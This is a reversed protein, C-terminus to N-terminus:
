NLKEILALRVSNTLLSFRPDISVVQATWVGYFERGTITLTDLDVEGPTIEVKVVDYIRKFYWEQGNLELDIFKPITSFKDLENGARELALTSTQLLTEIKLTPKQRETAVVSEVESDDIEIRYNGSEYNKKYDVSVIAAILDSDTQVTIDNQNNYNEKTIVSSVGRARDDIRITRRGDANIEYRFRINAGEQVLRIAEFLKIEQDFMVGIESLSLEEAEWETINYNSDTYEINLAKQNLYKIVDSGYTIPEGTASEVRCNFVKGTPLGDKRCDAYSVVFEGTSLNETITDVDIWVDGSFIQVQGLVTLTDCLRFTVDGSSESNVPVAPAEAIPGYVLPISKNIYKEDIDPYNAVTFKDGPIEINQSKRIDQIRITIEELGIDSDEIYFTGLPVMNVRTAGCNSIDAPDLYYISMQQGNINATIFWDLIGEVNNLVVSGNIFSTQKYNQFDEQQAISPISLVLPQYEIDDIYIPEQDTYGYARGYTFQSTYWSQNHEFHIYIIQTDADWFFSKEQSLCDNYTAVKSYKSEIINRVIDDIYFTEQNTEDPAGFIDTWYDAQVATAPRYMYVFSDVPSFFDIPLYNLLEVIIM